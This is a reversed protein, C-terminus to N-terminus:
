LLPQSKEIQSLFFKRLDSWQYFPFQKTKVAPIAVERENHLVKALVPAKPDNGKRFLIIQINGAMPAIKFDAFATYFLSPDSQENYCNEIQMLAALPILNGDHAFRLDAGQIGDAIARDAREVIDGLANAANAVILGGNGPYPGDKVYFAYNFTQWIDFLEDPTFLDFFDVGKIEMDQIDVAIWYFGWAIGKASRRKYVFKTDTFLSKVLREGRVHKKEWENYDARWPGEEGTYEQSRKSHFNLYPMYKNSAEQTIQMTPIEEKLGECFAAMSLVCRVVMTARATVRATPSFIGPYNRMMRKAIGKHQRAGLPSLDGDHGEAEEWVLRLRRLVDKGLPTLVGASDGQEMLRLMKSYDRASILYRSGHRGFHAAYFAEYGAPPATVPLGEEPVPYAYYVGGAKEPTALVEERTTQAVAAVSAVALLIVVFHRFLNTRM